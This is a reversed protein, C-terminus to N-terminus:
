EGYRELIVPENLVIVVVRQITDVMMYNDKKYKVPVEKKDDEFFMSMHPVEIQRYHSRFDVLHYILETIEFAQLGLEKLMNCLTSKGTPGSRGTIIYTYKDADFATVIARYLESPSAGSYDRIM